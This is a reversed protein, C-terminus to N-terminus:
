PHPLHLSSKDLAYTLEEPTVDGGLDRVDPPFERHVRGPLALFRHTTQGFLVDSAWTESVCVPISWMAVSSHCSQRVGRFQLPNALCGIRRGFFILIAEM